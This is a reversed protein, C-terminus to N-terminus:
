VIKSVADLTLKGESVLKLVDKYEVINSHGGLTRKYDVYALQDLHKGKFWDYIAQAKSQRTTFPESVEYLYFLLLLAPTVAAVTIICTSKPDM